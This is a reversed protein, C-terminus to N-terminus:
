EAGAQSQPLVPLAKALQISVLQVTHLGELRLSDPIVKHLGRPKCTQQSTGTAIVTDPVDVPLLPWSPKEGAGDLTLVTVSFKARM